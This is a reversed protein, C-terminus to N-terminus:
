RGIYLLHSYMAILKSGPAGVHDFPPVDGQERKPLTCAKERRLLSTASGPSGGLLLVGSERLIPTESTYGINRTAMAM